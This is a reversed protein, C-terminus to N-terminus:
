DEPDRGITEEYQDDVVLDIIEIGTTGIRAAYFAMAPFYTGVTMHFRIGAAEELANDFEREFYATAAALPGTEFLEYSPKGEASGGVPFRGRAERLVEDSVTVSEREGPWPV